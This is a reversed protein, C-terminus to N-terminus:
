TKNKNSTEGPEGSPPALFETIFTDGYKRTKIYLLGTLKDPIEDNPAHEAFIRAGPTAIENEVILQLTKPVLEKGYPPDILIFDFRRCSKLIRSLVKQVSGKYIDANAEPVLELNRRIIENARRNDDVFAVYAAGRSIAEIGLSGIGAFLDLVESGVIEPGIMGFVAERVKASTPRVKM